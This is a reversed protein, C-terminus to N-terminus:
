GDDGARERGGERQLNLLHHILLQSLSVRVPLLLDGVLIVVVVVLAHEEVTFVGVGSVSSGVTEFPKLSLNTHLKNKCRSPPTKM